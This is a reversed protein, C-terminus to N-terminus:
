TVVGDKIIELDALVVVGLHGGCPLAVHKGNDHIVQRATHYVHLEM